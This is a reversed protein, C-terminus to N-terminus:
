RLGMAAPMESLGVALNLLGVGSVGGRVFPSSLFPELPAWAHVFYNRDWFASWPLVLLLLGAEIFFV